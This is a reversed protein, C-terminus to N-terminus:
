IIGTQSDLFLNNNSTQKLKQDLQEESRRNTHAQDIYFSSSYKPELHDSSRHIFGSQYQRGMRYYQVTKSSIQPATQPRSSHKLNEISLSRHSPTLRSRHSITRQPQWSHHSRRYKRQYTPQPIPDFSGTLHTEIDSQYTDIHFHILGFTEKKNSRVLIDM